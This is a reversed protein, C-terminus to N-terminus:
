IFIHGTYRTKVQNSYLDFCPEIHNNTVFLANWPEYAVQFVQFDKFKPIKRELGPIGQFINTKKFLSRSFDQFKVKATWKTYNTGISNTKTM